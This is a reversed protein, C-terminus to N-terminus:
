SYSCHVDQTFFKCAVGLLVHFGPDFVEFASDHVFFGQVCVAQTSEAEDHQTVEQEVGVVDGLDIVLGVVVSVVLHFYTSFIFFYEV